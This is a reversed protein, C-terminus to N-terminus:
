PKGVQIDDQYKALFFLSFIGVLIGVNQLFFVFLAKWLSGKTGDKGGRAAEDVAENLEPVMDVLAIYLFMGGALAFIIQNAQDLEGLLIGIILGLYCTCASLFNYMMAQRISMGSNLLVAFDGLEHPFEECLVALSVSIGTLISDSFAAGISLGDIFNHVGDGFIIMWAVTAVPSHNEELDRKLETATPRHEPPSPREMHGFSARMAPKAQEYVDKKNGLTACGPEFDIMGSNTEFGEEEERIPSFEEVIPISAHNQHNEKEEQQNFNGHVASVYGRGSELTNRRSKLEMIMKLMREIVFFMYVGGFIMISVNLYSHHPFFSVESLSFAAPILHFLASGSLSGVALGILTTLLSSYFSKSMFPLVGVGMVSMASIITVCLVSYGWILTTEPRKTNIVAPLHDDESPDFQFAECVVDFNDDDNTTNKRSYCFEIANCLALNPGSVDQCASSSGRSCLVYRNNNSRRRHTVRFSKSLRHLTPTFSICGDQYNGFPNM